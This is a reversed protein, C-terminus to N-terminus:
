EMRMQAGEEGEEADYTNASTNLEAAAIIADNSSAKELNNGLGTLNRNRQKNKGQKAGKIIEDITNIMWTSYAFMFDTVM